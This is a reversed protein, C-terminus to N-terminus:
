APARSGRARGPEYSANRSAIALQRRVSSSCLRDALDPALGFARLSAAARLDLLEEAARLVLLTHGRLTEAGDIRDPDRQAKALLQASV